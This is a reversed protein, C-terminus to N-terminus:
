GKILKIGYIYGDDIILNERIKLYNTFDSKCPCKNGPVSLTYYSKFCDFVNLEDEKDESNKTINIKRNIFDEYMNNSSKYNKTDKLISEPPNLGEQKYIKYYKLLMKMFAHKWKDGISHELENDREFQRTSDVILHKDLFESGFCIVILRRWTGKDHSFVKPLDNCLFAYKACSKFTVTNSYLSRTSIYDSTIKKVIEMNLKDDQGSENFVGFRIGRLAMLAPNANAASGTKKTLLATDLTTFYDGLTSSILSITTSKGNAGIGTWFHFKQDRIYGDLSSAMFKLSYHRIEEDTFVKKFYDEVDCYEKANEDVDIFDYKTSKTIRDDPVTERFIGSKLDIVGNDFGILDLNKDLTDAFTNSTFLCKLEDFIAKKSGNTYLRKLLKAVIESKKLFQEKESEEVNIAKEDYKQRLTIIDNYVDPFIMKKVFDMDETMIWKVGNFYYWDKNEKVLVDKYKEYIYTAIQTDTLQLAKELHKELHEMIISAFASKNDHKAYWKLTAITYGKNKNNYCSADYFVKECCGEQYKHQVKKSFIKYEELLEYEGTNYLCWGIMLWDEYRGSREISIIKLLETALKIDQKNVSVKKTINHQIILNNKHTDYVNKTKNTKNATDNNLIINDRVNIVDRDDYKRVSLIEVLQVDSSDNNIISMERDFIKTLVYPINNPKRGGYMLWNNRYAVSLDVIDNESSVLDFDEFVFNNTVCEQLDKLIQHRMLHDFSVFPMQFHIGDKYVGDKCIKKHKEFVYIHLKDDPIDYYKDIISILLEVINTIHSYTYRIDNKYRFDIDVLLPGVKKQVEVLHLDKDFIHKKYEEMFEHMKDDTINFKGQFGSTTQIYTHTIKDTARVNNLYCHLQKINTNKDNHKSKVNNYNNM